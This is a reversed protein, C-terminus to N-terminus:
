PLFMFSQICSLSRCFTWDIHWQASRRLVQFQGFVQPINESIETFCHIEAPFPKLKGMPNHTIPMLVLKFFIERCPTMHSCSGCLVSSSSFISCPATFQKGREGYFLSAAAVQTLNTVAAETLKGPSHLNWGCGVLNVMHHGSPVREIPRRGCAVAFIGSTIAFGFDGLRATLSKDRHLVEQECDLHLFTLVSAVYFAILRHFWPLSPGHGSDHHLVMDITGLPRFAYVLLFEGTAVGGDQPLILNNHRLGAFISLTALFEPQGDHSPQSRHAAVIAGPNSSAFFAKDVPGFAGHGKLRSSHFGTTTTTLEISCFETPRALLEVILCLPSSISRWKRFSVYGFAVLDVFFFNQMLTRTILLLQLKFTWLQLCRWDTPYRSNGLGNLYVFPLGNAGAMYDHSFWDWVVWKFIFCQATRCCPLCRTMACNRLATGGQIVYAEATDTGICHLPGGIDLLCLFRLISTFYFISLFFLALLFWRAVTLQPFRLSIDLSGFAIQEASSTLHQFVFSSWILIQEMQNTKVMPSWEDMERIITSMDFSEATISNDVDAQLIDNTTLVGLPQPLITSLIETTSPNLDPKASNIDETNATSTHTSFPLLFLFILGILVCVILGAWAFFVGIRNAWVAGMGSGMVDKLLSLQACSAWAPPFGLDLHQRSLSFGAPGLLSFPFCSHLFRGSGHPFQVGAFRKQMMAVPGCPMVAEPLLFEGTAVCWDQLQILVGLLGCAHVAIQSPDDSPEIAAQGCYTSHSPNHELARLTMSLVFRMTLLADEVVFALMEQGVKPFYFTAADIAVYPHAPLYLLYDAVGYCSPPCGPYTAEPRTVDEVKNMSVYSYIGCSFSVRSWLQVVVGQATMATGQSAVGIPKSPCGVMTIFFNGGITLVSCAVVGTQLVIYEHWTFPQISSGIISLFHTWSTVLPLGLSGDFNNLSLIIGVTLNLKITIICFLIGLVTSVALGSFQILERWDPVRNPAVAWRRQTEALLVSLEVGEGKM